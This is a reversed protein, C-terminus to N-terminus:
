IKKQKSNYCKGLPMYVNQFLLYILDQNSKWNLSIQISNVQSNYKNNYKLLTLLLRLLLDLLLWFLRTGKERFLEVSVLLPGPLRNLLLLLVPAPDRNLLPVLLPPEAELNLLLSEEALLGGLLSSPGTRSPLNVLFFRGRSLSSCAIIIYWLFIYFLFM